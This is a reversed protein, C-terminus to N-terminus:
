AYAVGIGFWGVQRRNAARADSIGSPDFPLEIPRKKAVQGLLIGLPRENENACRARMGFNRRYNLLQRTTGIDMEQSGFRRRLDGSIWLMEVNCLAKGSRRNNRLEDIWELQMFVQRRPSWRHASGDLRQM